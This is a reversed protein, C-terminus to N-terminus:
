GLPHPSNLVPNCAVLMPAGLCVLLLTLARLYLGRLESLSVPGALGAGVLFWRFALSRLRHALTIGKSLCPRGSRLGNLASIELSLLGGM